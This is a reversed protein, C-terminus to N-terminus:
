FCSVSCIFYFMGDLGKFESVDDLSEDPKNSITSEEDDSEEATDPSNDFDTRSIQTNRSPMNVSTKNNLTELGVGM